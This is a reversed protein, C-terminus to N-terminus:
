CTLYRIQCFHKEIFKVVSNDENSGIIDDAISKLEDCANIVAYGEDAAQFMSIDNLNDGFCIIREFGYKERFWNIGSAKTAKSDHIELWYDGLYADKAFFSSFDTDSKIMDVLPLLEDKVAIVIICYVQGRNLEEFTNVGYLRKDGRRSDLYNNIGSNEHDKVWLVREVGDILNYVLPYLNYDRAASLFNTIKENDITFSRIINGTDPYMIFAGNHTIIPLKLDLSKTIQSASTWSRATAYTFNLGRQILSKLTQTDEPKLVANSDLLTFDLDSVYLTKM